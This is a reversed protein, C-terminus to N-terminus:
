QRGSRVGENQGNGAVVQRTDNGIAVDMIGVGHDVGGPAVPVRHHDTATQETELRGVTQLQAAHVHRHDVEGVPQEFTLEVLRGAPHQLLREFLAPQLEQKALLGLHQDGTLTAADRCEAELVACLDRGVQHDHGDANARVRREGLRCADVAVAADDDIVRQLSVIRLDIRDALADGVAADSVSEDRREEFLALHGGVM